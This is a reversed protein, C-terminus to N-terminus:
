LAKSKNSRNIFKHVWAIAASSCIAMTVAFGNFLIDLPDFVRNPLFIQICEDLVVILFALVLSFLAPMPIYKGHKQREVLAKNIFIVLVSYEFPHSRESVRLRLFLMIYVAVIGLLLTFEVRSLKTKEAHIILMTGVLLMSLLFVVNQINQNRFYKALAQGIFLTSFIAVFVAFVLLWLLRERSSTFLPM